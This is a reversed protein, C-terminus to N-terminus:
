AVAFVLMSYLHERDVAIDGLSPRLDLNSKRLLKSRSKDFSSRYEQIWAVVIFSIASSFKEITDLRSLPTKRSRASAIGHRQISPHPKRSNLQTWVFRNLM